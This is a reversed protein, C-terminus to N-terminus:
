VFSFPNKEEESIMFTDQLFSFDSDQYEVIPLSQQLLTATRILSGHFFKIM